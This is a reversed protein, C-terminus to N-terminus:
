KEILEIDTVQNVEGEPYEYVKIIAKKNKFYDGYSELDECVGTYEFEIEMDSERINYAGTCEFVFESLPIELSYKGMLRRPSTKYAERYREIFPKYQSKLYWDFFYGYEKTEESYFWKPYNMYKLDENLIEFRANVYEWSVNYTEVFYRKITLIDGKFNKIIYDIIRAPLFVNRGIITAETELYRKETAISSKCLNDGYLIPHAGIIHGAEHHFNFTTRPKYNEKCYLIFFKNDQYSCYAEMSLNANDWISYEILEWGMVKFLKKPERWYKKVDLNELFESALDYARKYSTM